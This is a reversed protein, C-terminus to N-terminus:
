SVAPTSWKPYNERVWGNHRSVLDLDEISIATTASDYFDYHSIDGATNQSKGVWNRVYQNLDTANIAGDSNLDGPYLEIPNDSTSIAFEDASPIQIGQYGTASDPKVVRKLYNDQYITLTYSGPIIYTKFEFYGKSDTYVVDPSSLGSLQVAIGELRASNAAKGALSVYGYVKSPEADYGVPVRDYTTAGVDGAVRRVTMAIEGGESQLFNQVPFNYTGAQAATLPGFQRINTTDSDATDYTKYFTIIDGTQLKSVTIYDSTPGLLNYVAVDNPMIPSELSLVQIKISAQKDSIRDRVVITDYVPPTGNPTNESGATVVSTGSTILYPNSADYPMYTWELDVAYYDNEPGIQLVTNLDKSSNTPLRLVAQKFKLETAKLHVKLKIEDYKSPDYLSEVRLVVYDENFTTHNPNVSITPPTYNGGIAGSGAIPKGLYVANTLASADLENGSMDLLKWNVAINSFTPDDSPFDVHFTKNETPDDTATYIMTGATLSAKERIVIDEPGQVSKVVVKLSQTIQSGSAGNRKSVATFVMAATKDPTLEDTIKFKLYTGQEEVITIFDTYETVGDPLPASLSVSWNVQPFSANAPTPNVKITYIESKNANNAVYGEYQLSGIPVDKAYEPTTGDARTIEIALNRLAVVETEFAPFPDNACGYIFDFTQVISASATNTVLWAAGNKQADPASEDYGQSGKLSTVGYDYINENTAIGFSIANGAGTTEVVNFTVSFMKVRGEIKAKTNATTGSISLWGDSNCIKPYTGTSGGEGLLYGGAWQENSFEKVIGVAKGIAGPTTIQNESYAVGNGNVVKLYNPNFRIPVTWSNLKGFDEFYVNLKFTSGAYLKMNTVTVPDHPKGTTADLEIKKTTVRGRDDQENYYRTGKSDEVEFYIKNDTVPQVPPLNPQVAEAVVGPAASETTGNGATGYSNDGTFYQEGSQTVVMVGKSSPFVATITQQQSLNAFIQTYNIITDTEPQLTSIFQNSNRGIAYLSNDETLFVVAATSVFTKVCKAGNMTADYVKHPDGVGAAGFAHAGGYMNVNNIGVQWVSGSADIVTTIQGNSNLTTFDPNAALMEANEPVKRIDYPYKKGNTGQFTQAHGNGGASFLVGDSRMVFLSVDGYTPMILQATKRNAGGKREAPDRVKVSADEGEQLVYDRDYSDQLQDDLVDGLPKFVITTNQTIGFKSFASGNGAMYWDGNSDKLTVALTSFYWEVVAGKVETLDLETPIRGSNPLGMYNSASSGWAFMQGHENQVMVSNNCSAVVKVIKGGFNFDHKTPASVVTNGTTTEGEYSNLGLGYSTNTGWVYLEGNIVRLMGGDPTSVFTNETAKLQAATAAAANDAHYIAQAPMTLLPLCGVLISLVLLVSLIRQQRVKVM